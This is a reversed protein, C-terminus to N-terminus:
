YVKALKGEKYSDLTEQFQTKRRGKALDVAKEQFEIASNKQNKLFMVRALTDLIEANNSQTAANAQRAVKEALNLAREELNNQIAIRWAVENYFMADDENEVSSLLKQLEALSTEIKDWEKSKIEAYIERRLKAIAGGNPLNGTRYADLTRQLGRKSGEDAFKVAQQQLEIAANKEGKLFLVRALTDLIEPNSAETASDTPVSKLIMCQGPALKNTVPPPIAKM